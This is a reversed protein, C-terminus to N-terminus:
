RTNGDVVTKDGSKEADESAGIRRLEAPNLLGEGEVVLGGGDEEAEMKEEEELFMTDVPKGDREDAVTRCLGASDLLKSECVVKKCVIETTANVVPIVVTWSDVDELTTPSTGNELEAMVDDTICVLGLLLLMGESVEVFGYKIEACNKVNDVSDLEWSGITADLVVSTELGSNDMDAGTTVLVVIDGGVVIKVVAAGENVVNNPGSSSADDMTLTIVEAPTGTGDDTADENAGITM